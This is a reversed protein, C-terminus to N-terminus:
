GSQKGLYINRLQEFDHLGDTSANYQVRGHDLLVVHDAVSLAQDVLQEVLLVGIGEAQISVLIELVDNVIAPALGATPEDLMIVRPGPMLAQAISLMQQQGGSLGGAADHRKAHLAPFREYANQIAARREGRTLVYGGIALNEEVTRRRFVRKNEPVLSIGSGNRAYPSLSTIDAGDLLIQGSARKALGAITLLVTSKGAGNRGLLVTVEGPHVSLCVDRVALLDRYGASLDKVELLTSSADNTRM